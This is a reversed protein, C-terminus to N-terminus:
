GLALDEIHDKSYLRSTVDLAFHLDIDIAIPGLKDGTLQKETLYEPVGKAVVDRYYLKMFTLYEEDSIHYSGSYIGSGEEGGIRTHTRVLDATEPDDKKLRHKAIFDNFDKYKPRKKDKEKDDTKSNSRVRLRTPKTVPGSEM